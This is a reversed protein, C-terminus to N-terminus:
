LGEEGFVWKKLMGFVLERKIPKTMYDDMGADLCKERDGKMAHATMAVIPIRHESNEGNRRGDEWRRIRKTAELGDMEPMQIDMFILDFDEPVSTYKELAEQGTNAVELQYGAKTLMLKGLKQNVPNDEALLIRLSHKMEERISYQTVIATPMESLAHRKDSGKDRRSKGAEKSAQTKKKGLIRDLMHYLKQRHIPKSLFGDFGVAQCAKADREMLSSVAILPLNSFPRMSDRVQKAVQYGNMDPMQIDVICLDFPEGEKWAKQLAPQVEQGSKLSYGHAGFLELTHSLIERNTKNDDVVLIKKGSLSVPVIKESAIEESRGFWGIFHFTSGKKVQSEAWVDGQMLNSIQKCISLGLGTGGYKRTTSGDVQQFPEFITSLREKPIGIGTDRVTAHIKVRAETEEEVVLALEIEGSNTFKSANGMLNTLVQRFRLPDGKVHSSLNDGIHCLVEIPRSQARLRILECVDYAILELDFDVEEFDLEGAEIKSFDLIDNILSVLSEGSRKITRVYDSQEGDLQTDFLMDTFGIVANMPTRIEHSMNALFQSKAMNAFEAQKAMENARATEKKLEKTRENVKKELQINQKQLLNYYELSELANATNLLIISLLSLSADPIRQKQAPLLGVFMGRLQSYTAIVHLLFQTSHEKSEIFVGRRERLAWAFFGKDIMFEVEDEIFRKSENPNCVSLVFDSNDQDALYLACVKFPILRRIRQEAEKLIHSFGYKENIKEQFDGLSLAMELANQIFRRNEELYQIRVLLQEPDIHNKM